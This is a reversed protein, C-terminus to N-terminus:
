KTGAVPSSSSKATALPKVASPAAHKRAPATSSSGSPASRGRAGGAPQAPAAYGVLLVVIPALRAPSLRAARASDGREPWASHLGAGPRSGTPMRSRCATVRTGSSTGMRWPRMSAEGNAKKRPAAATM